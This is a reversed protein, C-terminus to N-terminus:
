GSHWETLDCAAIQVGMETALPVGRQRGAAAWQRERRLTSLASPEHVVVATESGATRVALPVATAM